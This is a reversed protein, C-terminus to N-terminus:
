ILAGYLCYSRNLTPAFFDLTSQSVPDTKVKYKPSYLIHSHHPSAIVESGSIEHTEKYCITSM